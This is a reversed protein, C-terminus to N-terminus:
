GCFLEQVEDAPSDGVAANKNCYEIVRPLIDALIGPLPIVAGEARSDEVMSKVTGLLIAATGEIDVTMDDSSELTFMKKSSSSSSM